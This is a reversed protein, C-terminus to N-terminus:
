LVYDERYFTENKNCKDMQSFDIFVKFINTNVYM